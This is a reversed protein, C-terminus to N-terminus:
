QFGFTALLAHSHLQPGLFLAFLTMYIMDAIIMKFVHMEKWHVLEHM